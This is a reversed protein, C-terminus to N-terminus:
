LSDSDNEALSELEPRNMSSVRRRAFGQESQELMPSGFHVRPQMSDDPAIGEYRNITGASSAVSARLTTTTEKSIVDSSRPGDIPPPDETWNWTSLTTRGLDCSQIRQRLKARANLTRLLGIAYLKATIFVFFVLLDDHKGDGAGAHLLVLAMTMSLSPLIATELSLFIVRNIASDSTNLGTKSRILCVVLIVAVALDLFTCGVIWYHFVILTNRLDLEFQQTIHRAIEYLHFEIGTTITIYLQAGLVTTWLLVLPYLVWPLRGTLKWCRQIYFAECMISIAGNVFFDPAFFVNSAWHHDAVSVTWTKYGELVTQVTSLFVVTLVFIRKRLSDEQYDEWYKLGQALVFGLCFSHLLAGILIVGPLQYAYDKPEDPVSIHSANLM